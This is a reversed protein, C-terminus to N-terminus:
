PKTPTKEPADAATETVTSTVMRMSAIGRTISARSGSMEISIDLNMPAFVYKMHIFYCTLSYRALAKMLTQFHVRGRIVTQVFLRYRKNM